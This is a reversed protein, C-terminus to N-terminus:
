KISRLIDQLAWYDPNLFPTIANAWCVFTFILGIGAIITARPIGEEERASQDHRTIVFCFSIGIAALAAWVAGWAMWQWAEIQAQAHLAKWILEAPVALKAALTEIAQNLDM